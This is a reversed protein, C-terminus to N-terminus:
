LVVHGRETSNIVYYVTNDEIKVYTEMTKIKKPDNGAEKYANTVINEIDAQSISKGAYQVHINVAMEKAKKTTTATKKTTTTTKKAPAAKKTATKRVKKEVIEEAM